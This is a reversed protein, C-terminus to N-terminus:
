IQEQAPPAVRLALFLSATLVTVGDREAEIIHGFHTIDGTLLVSCGSGAAAEIIPRDKDPLGHYSRKITLTPNTMISTM